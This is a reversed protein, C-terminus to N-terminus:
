HLNWDIIFTVTFLISSFFISDLLPHVASVVHGGNRIHEDIIKGQLKCHFLYIIESQLVLHLALYRVYLYISEIGQTIIIALCAVMFFLALIFSKNRNRKDGIRHYNTAILFGSYWPLLSTLVISLRGYLKYDPVSPNTSVNSM